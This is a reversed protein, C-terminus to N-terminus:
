RKPHIFGKLVLGNQKPKFDLPWLNTAVEGGNRSGAGNTNGDISYFKDEDVLSVIGMHGTWHPKGNKYNQWVALAGTAPKNNCQWGAKNFNNWTQVAGASFLEAVENHILANYRSYALRWVYEAAFACWAQGNKWGVTIMVEEFEKDEWGQNGPIEKKGLFGQAIEKISLDLLM